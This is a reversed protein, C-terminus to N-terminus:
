ADCVGKAPGMDDGFEASADLLRAILRAVAVPAFCVIEGEADIVTAVHSGYKECVMELERFEDATAKDSPDGDSVLFIAKEYDRLETAFAM